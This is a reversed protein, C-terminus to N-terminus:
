PSNYEKFWAYLIITEIQIDDSCLIEPTEFCNELVRCAQFPTTGAPSALELEKYIIMLFSFPTHGLELRHKRGSFTLLFKKKIMSQFM